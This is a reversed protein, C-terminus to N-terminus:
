TLGSIRLDNCLRRTIIETCKFFSFRRVWSLESSSCAIRAQTASVRLTGASWIRTRLPSSSLM